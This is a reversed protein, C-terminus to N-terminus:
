EGLPLAFLQDATIGFTSEIIDNFFPMPALLIDGSGTDGLVARVIAENSERDDMGATFEGSAIDYIYNASGVNNESVQFVYTQIEPYYLVTVNNGGDMDKSLRVSNGELDAFPVGWEPHNIKVSLGEEDYDATVGTENMRFGLEALSFVGAFDKDELNQYIGSLSSYDTVQSGELKLAELGYLEALPSIDSVKTNILSVSTLGTMKSLFRIDSVNSDELVIVKLSTLQSLPTYDTIECGALSLSTLNPLQSLPTLDAIPNGDLTLSTLSTLAALSSIDAIANNSLDLSTLNKFNALSTLDKIQTDEGGDAQADNGLDLDTVLDAEAPQIPTGPLRYMVKEVRAQLVPDSFIVMESQEAAKGSLAGSCGFLSLSLIVVLIVCLVKKM